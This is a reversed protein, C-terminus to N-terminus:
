FMNVDVEPEADKAEEVSAGASSKAEAASPSVVSPGATKAKEDLAETDSPEAEEAPAETASPEAEEAAPEQAFGSPHCLPDPYSPPYLNELNLCSFNGGREQRVLKWPAM